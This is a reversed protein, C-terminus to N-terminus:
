NWDELRMLNTIVTTKFGELFLEAEKMSKEVSQTDLLVVITGMLADAAVQPNPKEDDLTKMIKNTLDAIERLEKVTRKMMEM